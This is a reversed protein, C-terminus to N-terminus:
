SGAERRLARPKLDALSRWLWEAPGMRFHRLWPASWALIAATPVLCLLLAQGRSVEAFLGLGWGAFMVAFILSTSLYNTLAMRGAAALLMTSRHEKLSSGFLAMAFAAYAVGLALDFPASWVLVNAATVIPDFGSNMTWGALAMLVPLSASACILGLRMARRAEWQGALLGCRWFAM